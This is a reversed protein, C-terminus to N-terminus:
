SGQITAQTGQSIDSLGTFEQKLCVATIKLQALEEALFLHGQKL